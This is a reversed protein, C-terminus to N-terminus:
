RDGAPQAPPAGPRRFIALTAHRERATQSQCREGVDIEASATLNVLEADAAFGAETFMDTLAPMSVDCLCDMHHVLRGGPRLLRLFRKLYSVNQERAFSADFCLSDIMLMVDVSADALDDLATDRQGACLRLDVRAASRNTEALQRRVAEIAAPDIDTAYLVGKAGLAEAVRFVFWGHGMGIEAVTMGPQLAAHRLIIARTVDIPGPASEGANARAAAGPAAVLLAVAVALLAAFPTLGIDPDRM